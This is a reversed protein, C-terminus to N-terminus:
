TWRRAKAAAADKPIYFVCLDHSYTITGNLPSPGSKLTNVLSQVQYPNVVTHAGVWEPDLGDGSHYTEVSLEKKLDLTICIGEPQWETGVVELVDYKDRDITLPVEKLMDHKNNFYAVSLKCDSFQPIDTCYFIAYGDNDKTKMVFFRTRKSQGPSEKMIKEELLGGDRSSFRLRILAHRGLHEQEIFLVAENGVDYLGKFSVESLSTIDLSQCLHKQTCKEKRATDFVKLVIPKGLEFHFLLTNGNKMCLVRNVGSQKIKVPKSLVFKKEQSYALGSAMCLLLLVSFKVRNM